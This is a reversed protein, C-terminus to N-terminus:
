IKLVKAIAKLIEEHQQSNLGIGLLSKKISEYKQYNNMILDGTPITIIDRIFKMRAEFTKFEKRGYVFQAGCHPCYHEDYINYHYWCESCMCEFKNKHDDWVALLQGKKMLASGKMKEM